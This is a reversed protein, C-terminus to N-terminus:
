RTIRVNSIAAPATGTDVTLTTTSRVEPARVSERDATAAPGLATRLRLHMELRTSPHDLNHDLLQRARQLRYRLTNHHVGSTASALAVDQGADLWALLTPALETGRRRDYAMLEHLPDPGLESLAAICEGVRRLVIEPRARELTLCRGVRGNV